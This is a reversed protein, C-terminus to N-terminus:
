DNVNYATIKLENIYFKFMFKLNPNALVPLNFLDYNM